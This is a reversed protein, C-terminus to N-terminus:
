VAIPLLGRCPLALFQSDQCLSVPSEEDGDELVLTLTRCSIYSLFSLNNHLLVSELWMCSSLKLLIGHIQMGHIYTTRPTGGTVLVLTYM